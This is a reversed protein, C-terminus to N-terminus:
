AGLSRFRIPNTLYIIGSFTSESPFNSICRAREFSLGTPPPPLFYRSNDRIIMFTRSIARVSHSNDRVSPVSQSPHIEMGSKLPARDTQSLPSSGGECRASAISRAVSFIFNARRVPQPLSLDSPRGPVFLAHPVLSENSTSSQSWSHITIM